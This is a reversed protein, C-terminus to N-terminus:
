HETSQDFEMNLALTEWTRVDAEVSELKKRIRVISDRGLPLRLTPHESEVLQIIAEAAKAPDGKQQGNQQLLTEQMAGSTSHYDEIKQKAVRISDGLFNTRFQGPEVLSVKIGLPATEAALAESLGEVAFKSAGYLGSGTGAAIGGVSSINLIHGSRQKRMLPLVARTVSLLGFVNVQFMQQEEDESVEEVAGLLGYGANNVLVDIRGFTATVQSIAEQIQHKDKVDMVLPLIQNGWKQVLGEFADPQRSAAVVRDGHELVAEVIARGLGQSAGTVLWVRSSNHSV